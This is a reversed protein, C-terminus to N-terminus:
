TNVIDVLREFVRIRDDDSAGELDKLMESGHLEIPPPITRPPARQVDAAVRLVADRVRVYREAPVLVATLCALDLEKSVSEDFFAFVVPQPEARGSGSSTGPGDSVALLTTGVIRAVLRAAEARKVGAAAARNRAPRNPSTGRGSCGVGWVPVRALRGGCRAQHQKM